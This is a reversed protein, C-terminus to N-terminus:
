TSRPSACRDGVHKDGKIYYDVRKSAMTQLLDCNEVETDCCYCIRVDSSFMNQANCYPCLYSLYNPFIIMSSLELM